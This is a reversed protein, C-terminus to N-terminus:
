LQGGYWLIARELRVLPPLAYTNYMANRAVLVEQAKQNGDRKERNLDGEHLTVWDLAQIRRVLEGTPTAAMEFVSGDM